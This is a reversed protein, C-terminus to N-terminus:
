YRTLLHFINNFIGICFSHMFTYDVFLICFTVFHKKKDSRKVVIAPYMAAFYIFASVFDVNNPLKSDAKVKVKERENFATDRNEFEIM